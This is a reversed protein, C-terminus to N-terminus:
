GPPSMPISRCRLFPFLLEAPNRVWIRTVTPEQRKISTDTEIGITTLEIGLPMTFKRQREMGILGGLLLALLLRTIFVLEFQWMENDIYFLNPTMM